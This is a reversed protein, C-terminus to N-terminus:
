RLNPRSGDLVWCCWSGSRGQRAEEARRVGESEVPHRRRQRLGATDILRVPIGDLDITTRWRTERRAPSTGHVIARDSASCHRNFLSSKGANPVASWRGPHGRRQVVRGTQFGALLEECTVELARAIADGSDSPAVAASQTESEDVFEVAAEARAIWEEISERLPALRRSISGEAQAFAIRAQYLTRAAVLDAVAEARALDIRGHRLARYTFEGPGAPTAGAAVAGEILEALVAPSGHPWWEATPEGTFSADAPFLVLYGHDIFRGGRDLFRGFSPRGGSEASRRCAPLPRARDGGGPATSAAHHVRAAHELVSRGAVELERLRPTAAAAEPVECGGCTERLLCARDGGIHEAVREVEVARVRGEQVVTAHEVGRVRREGLGQPM